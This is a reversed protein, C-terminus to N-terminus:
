NKLASDKTTDTVHTKKGAIWSVKEITVEKRGVV